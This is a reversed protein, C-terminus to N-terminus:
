GLYFVEGKISHPLDLNKLKTCGTYDFKRKIKKPIGDFSELSTCHRCSFRDCAQPAGELSELSECQTCNFMICEQPAGKLSKLKKCKECDFTVCKKPLM